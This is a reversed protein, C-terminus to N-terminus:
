CTFNHHAPCFSMGHFESSGAARLFPEGGDESMGFLSEPLTRFDFQWSEPLLPEFGRMSLRLYLERESQCWSDDPLNVARALRRAKERAFNLAIGKKESKPISLIDFDSEDDSLLAGVNNTNERAPTYAADDDQGKSKRKPKSTALPHSANDPRATDLHTSESVVNGAPTYILQNDNPNYSEDDIDMPDAPYTEEPPESYSQRGCTLYEQFSGHDQNKSPSINEPESEIDLELEVANARATSQSGAAASQTEEAIPSLPALGLYPPIFIRRRKTPRVPASEPAFDPASDDAQSTSTRKRKPWKPKPRGTAPTAPAPQCIFSSPGASSPDISSPGATSSPDISTSPGVSTSSGISATPDVSPTAVASATTAVPAAPATATASDVARAAFVTAPSTVPTVSNVPVDSSASTASTVPAAPTPSTLAATSVEPPATVAATPSSLDAPGRATVSETEPEPESESESYDEIHQDCVFSVGAPSYARTSRLSKRKSRGSTTAPTHPNSLNASSRRCPTNEIEDAATDQSFRQAANLRINRSAQAFSMRHRIRAPRHLDRLAKKTLKAQAQPADEVAPASLSPSEVTNESVSATLHPHSSTPDDVSAPHTHSSSEVINEGSSKGSPNEVSHQEASIQEASGVTFEAVGATNEDTPPHDPQPHLHPDPHVRRAPWWSSLSARFRAFM